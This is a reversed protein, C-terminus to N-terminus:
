RVGVAKLDTLFALEYELTFSQQTKINRRESIVTKVHLTRIRPIWFPLFHMNYVKYTDLHLLGGDAENIM